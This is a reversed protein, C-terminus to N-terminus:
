VVKDYNVMPLSDDEYMVESREMANSIPFEPQINELPLDPENNELSISKLEQGLKNAELEAPNELKFNPSGKYPMVAKGVKPM